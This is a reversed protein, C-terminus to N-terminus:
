GSGQGPCPPARSWNPFMEYSGWTTYKPPCPSHLSVPTQGTLVLPCFATWGGCAKLVMAVLYYFIGFFTPLISYKLWKCVLFTKQYFLVPFVQTPQAAKFFQSPMLPFAEMPLHPLSLFPFVTDSHSLLNTQSSHAHHVHLCPLRPHTSSAAMSVPGGLLSLPSCPWLLSSPAQLDYPNHPCFLLEHCHDFLAAWTHAHQLLSVHLGACQTFHM